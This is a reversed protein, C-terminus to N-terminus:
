RDDRREVGCRASRAELEGRTVAALASAGRASVAVSAAAAGRALCEAVECGAVRASVFGAAFADGAGTPDVVETGVAAWTWTAEAHRDYLVGGAAGRKYAIYRLRHGGIGDIHEIPDDGAPLDLEDDGVFVADCHALVAEWARASRVSLPEHPDLAVFTGPAAAAVLERQCALPMPAVLLGPAVRWATPVDVPRPSVEAHSPRGARHVMQRVAGEYLLWIRAGPGPLRVVGDLRAGRAELEALADAPYDTGAVSVCGVRTGWAAAAHAAHLLAGGAQAMMTRGDEFVLDDVLLNGACVVEPTM